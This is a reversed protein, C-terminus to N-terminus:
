CLPSKSNNNKFFDEENKVFPVYYIYSHVEVILIKQHPYKDKNHHLIVDILRGEAIAIEVDEFCIGRQKKLLLNKEYSREFIM